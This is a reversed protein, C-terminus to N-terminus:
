YNIKQLLNPKRLKWQGPKQHNQSVTSQHTTTEWQNTPIKIPIGSPLISHAPLWRGPNTQTGVSCFSKTDSGKAISSQLAPKKGKLASTIEMVDGYVDYLLESIEDIEFYEIPLPMKNNWNTVLERSATSLEGNIILLLRRPDHPHFPHNTIQRVFMESMQGFINTRLEKPSVKGKKAQVLVTIQRKVFDHDKKCFM